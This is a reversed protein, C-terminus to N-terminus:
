EGGDSESKEADPVSAEPPLGRQDLNFVDIIYERVHSRFNEPTLESYNPELYAEACWEDDETVHRVISYKYGTSRRRFTSLWHAETEAWPREEIRKSKKLKFGDDKWYALWTEHDAHNPKHAMFVLTCTVVGILPFLQDPMSMAALLTHSSLLRRKWERNVNTDETACSMPVIAICIGGTELMECAEYIFSLEHKGEAKKGYPPNLIAVQPPRKVATKKIEADGLIAELKAIENELETIQSLMKERQKPAASPLALRLAKLSSETRQKERIVAKNNIAAQLAPDFCSGKFMNSKGDGRMLMNACALTFMRDNQEIGILQSRKIEKITEDDLKAKQIMEAMGAILFGGTGACSDLLVTDKELGGIKAFLGTIHRPTLVIGLGKKDGGSYKLFEGYFNGLLDINHEDKIAGWVNDEIRSITDKLHPHIEANNKIFAYNHMMIEIKDSRLKEHSLYNEVHTLLSAALDSGSLEARYSKRFATVSLGLLIASVLLPKEPESLEMEDRLFEHLEEAFDEIDAVVAAHYAPDNGLINLYADPKLITTADFRVIGGGRQCKFTSIRLQDRDTGSVAIGVTNFERRLNRMYHIVGDEAFKEADLEAKELDATQSVAQSSHLACDNKCEIVVLDNADGNLRYIIEPKGQGTGTRKGRLLRKIPAEFSGQYQIENQDFGQRRLITEVISETHREHKKPMRAEGSLGSPLLRMRAGNRNKDSPPGRFSSLTQAM